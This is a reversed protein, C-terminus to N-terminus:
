RRAQAPVLTVGEVPEDRLGEEPGFTYGVIAKVVVGASSATLGEGVGFNVELRDVSILDIVEFVQHQEDRWPLIATLPGLTAYYEFGLAVPGVTRAVKLAPQFSPGQSADAGAFAQDLIPNVVFLWADDFYTVIPRIESGWRDHDYTPPLYSVELNVGLRWHRSWAPPTVFKSRLKVGAWDVVGEDTRVAGELYGGLEWFPTIGLSPELTPHFQGHLPAEPPTATRNGTAWDNLHLEIGPVGPANATGDYVQIEFPDGAAATSAVLPLALLVMAPAALKRM